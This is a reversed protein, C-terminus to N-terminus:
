PCYEVNTSTIGQRNQQYTEKLKGVLSKVAEQSEGEVLIDGRNNTIAQIYLAVHCKEYMGFDDKTIRPNPVTTDGKHEIVKELGERIAGAHLETVELKLKYSEGM